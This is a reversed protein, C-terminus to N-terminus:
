LEYFATLLTYLAPNKYMINWIGCGPLSFESLLLLKENLSEADDFWVIHDKGDSATYTFYPAKATEDFLIATGTQKALAVAGLPSVVKAMSAGSQYPLAWDYGYNPLGMWVKEPPIESTAYQLVQRVNPLPAVALPPGYTYGWEYTMLYAFDTVSAIAAYDHGQYIIGEQNARVKPALATVTTKGLPRLAESLSGIFAAYLAANRPYIYEFDMDVGADGQAAVASLIDSRLRESAEPSNLLSDSLMSSFGGSENLSSVSLLTKVGNARALSRMLADNMPLLAGESTIRHTFPTLYTLYVLATDLTEEAISPYAYGNVTLRGRKEEGLSVILREGPQIYQRGIFLPNLRLLEKVTLGYRAAIRYLSDGSDVTYSSVYPFIMIAQGIALSDPNTLANTGIVDMLNVGYARAISYVSEGRRVRHIFLSDCGTM